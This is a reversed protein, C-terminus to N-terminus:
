VLPGDTGEQDALSMYALRQREVEIRQALTDSAGISMRVGECIGADYKYDLMDKHRGKLLRNQYGQVEAALFDCWLKWGETEQMALILHQQELYARLADDPDHRSEDFGLDDVVSSM